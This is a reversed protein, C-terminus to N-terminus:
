FNYFSLDYLLFNVKVDFVQDFLDSFEVIEEGCELSNSQMEILEVEANSKKCLLCCLTENENM